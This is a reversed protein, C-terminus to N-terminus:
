SVKRRKFFDRGKRGIPIIDIQKDGNDSMLKQAAKIVNTNFPGCLGRDSTVLVIAWHHDERADLLPHSYDGTREAVRGLVRTMTKLYPRAAIVRTQARRLHSASVMKLARTLQEMSKVSRIRRRIDQLNAM